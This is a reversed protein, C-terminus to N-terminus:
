VERRLLKAAHAIADGRSMSDFDHAQRPCSVAWGGPERILIVDDVQWLYREGTQRDAPGAVARMIRGIAEDDDTGAFAQAADKAKDTPEAKGALDRAIKGHDLNSQALGLLTERDAPDARTTVALAFAQKADFGQKLGHAWALLRRFGVAATLTGNSAGDRTLGAFAVMTDAISAPVGTISSLAKAEKDPAMFGVPVAWAFRDALALNQAQTDAYRGTEDGTLNTNDAGMFLVDQATRVIRNGDEKLVVAHSDLIEQLVALTGPRLFSPEDILIICGPVQMAATVAGDHWVTGGNADPLRQGILEVPETFRNITIRAFPRGLVAALQRAASTKGTGAPGFLFPHGSPATAPHSAMRLGACLTSLVGLDWVYNPDHAPVGHALTGKYTAVLESLGPNRSREGKTLSLGFAKDPAVMPGRVASGAPAPQMVERPMTALAALPAISEELAAMLKSGLMGAVPALAEQVLDHASRAPFDHTPNAAPTSAQDATPPTMTAEIERATREGQAAEQAKATAVIANVDIGFTKAADLIQDNTLTSAGAGKLVLKRYSKWDAHATVASRIASRSERTLRM